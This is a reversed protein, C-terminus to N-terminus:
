HAQYFDEIHYGFYKHENSKKVLNELRKIYEEPQGRASDVYAARIRQYPKPSERFFEWAAPKAQLAAIIDEPIEFEDPRNAQFVNIMEPMLKGEDALRALREKNTQSYGSGPNRPTFRQAHKEEDIGKRISDIWGFCLAEEVAVNYPLSPKGTEKKYYILWIEDKSLYHELLWNRWEEGTSVYLTETIEM